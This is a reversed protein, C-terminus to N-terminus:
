TEGTVPDPHAPPPQLRLTADIWTVVDELSSLLVENGTPVHQVRIYRGNDQLQWVRLLFATYQM